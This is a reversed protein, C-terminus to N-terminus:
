IIMFTFPKGRTELNTHLSRNHGRAATVDEWMDNIQEIKRLLQM